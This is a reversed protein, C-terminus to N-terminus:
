DTIRIRINQGDKMAECADQLMASAQKHFTTMDGTFRQAVESIVKDNHRREIQIFEGKSVELLKKELVRSFFELLEDHSLQVSVENEVVLTM